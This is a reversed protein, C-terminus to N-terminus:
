GAFGGEWTPKEAARARWEDRSIESDVRLGTVQAFNLDGVVATINPDPISFYQCQRETSADALVMGVVERNYLHVFERAIIGGYSHGLLIYPPKIQTTELAVHLEQAAIVANIRSPGDESRGLGSRDHLLLRAFPSVLREVATYSRSTDGSGPFVLVIPEGPQRVPGSVSLYLKHTGISVLSFKTSTDWDNPPPEM